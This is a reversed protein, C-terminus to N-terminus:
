VYNAAPLPPCEVLEYVSHVYRKGSAGTWFHFRAAEDARAARQAMEEQALTRQARYVALKIIRAVM